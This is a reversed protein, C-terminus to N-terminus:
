PVKEGIHEVGASLLRLAARPFRLSPLPRTANQTGRQRCSADSGRAGGGEERAEKGKYEPSARTYSVYIYIFIYVGRCSL